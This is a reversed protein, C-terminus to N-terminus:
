APTLVLFVCDHAGVATAKFTSDFAGLDAHHWIDRVHCTTCALGPVDSFSLSLDVTANVHNMLLVATKTGDWAMPKYFYQWSSAELPGVNLMDEVTMSPHVLATNLSALEVRETAQKFPTGSEGAYAQNVALVETNSIIPWIADMITQNTPDHSLTLPSSVIAWAGFHARTEAITLGSDEQFPSALM